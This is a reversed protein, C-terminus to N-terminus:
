AFRCWRCGRRFKLFEETYYDYGVNVSDAFMQKEPDYHIWHTTTFGGNLSLNYEHEYPVDAKVDRLMQETSIWKRVRKTEMKELKKLSVEKM